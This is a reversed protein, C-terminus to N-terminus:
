RKKTKAIIVLGGILVLVVVGACIVLTGYEEFFTKEDNNETGGPQEDTPEDPTIGEVTETHYLTLIGDTENDIKTVVFDGATFTVDCFDTWEETDTELKYNLEITLDGDPIKYYTGNSAVVSEINWVECLSTLTAGYTDAIQGPMGIDENFMLFYQNEIPETITKALYIYINGGNPVFVWKGALDDGVELTKIQVSSPIPTFIYVEMDDKSSTYETIIMNDKNLTLTKTDTGDQINEMVYTIDKTFDYMYGAKGNYTYSWVNLAEACEYVSDVTGAGFISGAIPYLVDGITLDAGMNSPDYIFIYKGYINDGFEASKVYMSSFDPPETTEDAKATLPTTLIVGFATCLTLTFALITLWLKKTLTKM